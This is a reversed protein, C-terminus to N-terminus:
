VEVDAKAAGGIPGAPIDEFVGSPKVDGEAPNSVYGSLQGLQQDAM